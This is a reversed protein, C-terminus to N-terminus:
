LVEKTENKDKVDYDTADITEDPVNAIEGGEQNTVPNPDNLFRTLCYPCAGYRGPYMPIMTGCQPCTGKHKGGKMYANLLGKAMIAETMESFKKKDEM